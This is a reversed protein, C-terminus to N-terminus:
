EKEEGSGSVAMLKELAARYLSAKERAASAKAIAREADDTASVVLHEAGKMNEFLQWEPTNNAFTNKKPIEVM